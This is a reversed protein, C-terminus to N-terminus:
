NMNRIEMISFNMHLFIGDDRCWAMGTYDPVAWRGNLNSRHCAKYWWGGQYAVACNGNYADNDRDRTSFPLGNHFNELADDITGFIYEVNLRYADSEDALRFNDYIAKWLNGELDTMQIRLRYLGQYTIRHIIDNGLWFENKLDGFGNKYDAWDRYFNVSGDQRRQIVVWGDGSYFKCYVDIPEEQVTGADLCIRYIGDTSGGADNIESCDKPLKDQCQIGTNCHLCHCEYGDYTEMCTGGHLCPNTLCDPESCILNLDIGKMEPRDALQHDRPLRKPVMQIVDDSDPARMSPCSIQTLMPCTGDDVTLAGNFIMLRPLVLLFVIFFIM